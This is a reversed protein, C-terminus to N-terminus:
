LAQGLVTYYKGERIICLQGNRLVKQIGYMPTAIEDVSAEVESVRGITYQQLAVLINNKVPQYDKDYFGFGAPLVITEDSIVLNDKIFLRQLNQKMISYNIHNIHLYFQYFDNNLGRLYFFYIFHGFKRNFKDLFYVILQM